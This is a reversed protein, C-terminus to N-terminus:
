VLYVIINFIEHHYNFYRRQSNFTGVLIGLGAIRLVNLLYVAILGVFFMRVKAKLMAPFAIIFATLFSMVGLGLCSYNVRLYPGNVILVDSENHIAYFGFIKIISVAPIILANRIGQIYNLHDDVFSSYFKGGPSVVSNMFLNGQSFVIYLVLMIIIFRLALKNSVAKESKNNM